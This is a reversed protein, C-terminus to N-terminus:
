EGARVSSTQERLQRAAAINDYFEPSGSLLWNRHRQVMEDQEPNGYPWTEGIEEVYDKMLWIMAAAWQRTGTVTPVLPYYQDYAARILMHAVEQYIGPVNAENLKETINEPLEKDDTSAWKEYEESTVLGQKLAFWLKMRDLAPRFSAPVTVTLEPNPEDLSIVFSEGFKSLRVNGRVGLWRLALLAHTRVKADMEENRCIRRLLKESRVDPLMCLTRVAALVREPQDIWGKVKELIEDFSEELLWDLKIPRGAYDALGIMGQQRLAEEGHEAVLGNYASELEEAMETFTAKDSASVGNKELVARLWESLARPNNQWIMMAFTLMDRDFEVGEQLGFRALATQSDEEKRMLSLSLVLGNWANGNQRDELIARYFCFAAAGYSEQQLYQRGLGGIDGYQSM